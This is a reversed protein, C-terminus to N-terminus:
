LDEQSEGYSTKDGWRQGETHTEELDNEGSQFPSFSEEEKKHKLPNRHLTGKRTHFFICQPYVSVCWATSVGM